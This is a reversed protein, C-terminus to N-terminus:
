DGSVMKVEMPRQEHDKAWYSVRQPLSFQIENENFLRCIEWNLRDGFSKFDWYEPPSYWYTIRIKFGCITFDDLYVRPPFEPNQGEHDTLLDRVIQVAREIKEYATDLPLYIEADRRIYARQGVNAVDNSAIQDNPITVLNGNLLRLRTSRLGIDEVVGDYDKFHIRNGVRYPKDAMLSITGFLTKLTDQAGLAVAVGGIGASALLTAVPIGLYQGGILFLVVTAFVSFMRSCIRTLQANLGHPNIRPSAIITEALRKSAAFIVVVAALLGTLISSFSLVYLAAGRVTLYNEVFYEFIWSAFMAGIPFVLTLWYLILSKVRAPESLKLQARYLSWMVLITVLVGIIVGPWKWTALGLMRSQKMADPLLDYVWVLAPHGPTSLFWNHLGPSTTPGVTRYPRARINEFYNVARNVTGPSFLYEHKQAGEAVRAITIRSGPLRWSSLKEFGGAAEIDAEDPVDDWEPFEERDIIEKLCVAVEAARQFQAFAPIESQDICDLIRDALERHRPDNRNFVRESKILDHTENVADIFSRLTARPSSTDAAKIEDVDQASVANAFAACCLLFLVSVRATQFRAHVFLHRILLHGDKGDGTNKM